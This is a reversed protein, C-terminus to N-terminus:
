APLKETSTNKYSVVVTNDRVVRREKEENVFEQVESITFLFDLLEKFEESSIDEGFYKLVLGGLSCLNHTRIKREENAIKAALEKRSNELKSLAAETEKKREDYKALKAKMEDMDFKRPM